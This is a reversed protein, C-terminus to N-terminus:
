WGSKLRIGNLTASVRGLDLIPRTAVGTDMAAEAVRSRTPRDPPISRNSDSVRGSGPRSAAM